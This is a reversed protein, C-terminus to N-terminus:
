KNGYAIGKMVRFTWSEYQVFRVQNRFEGFVTEPMVGHVVIQKPKLRRIIERLGNRFREKEESSKICGLTSISYTGRGELGSFAFEFTREDGWRVNPIVKVGNNQLYFGIARNLYVNTMQLCLPMDIYLSCDPSIVGGFCRLDELYKPTDTIVARFTIDHMYFHVFVDQKLDEEIKKRKDFPVIDKPTEVIENRIIPIEWKGDFNAGRVLYAEFGDDVITRKRRTKIKNNLIM